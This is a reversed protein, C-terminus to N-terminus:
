AAGALQAIADVTGTVPTGDEYSLCVDEPLHALDSMRLYDRMTTGTCESDLNPAGRRADVDGAHVTRFDISFRTRGSDNPVSSHMQAGAFLIIGGPAPLLRLQPDLEMPEEPKPQERTDTKVHKAAELRSTRNWEQYNYKRSGNKVARGWYAPHFAMANSPLIPYIPLWWNIQCMPASYWTDRHPHFAYAIGSTLYNESTSTRMRPVDFYTLESDCGLDALIEQICKKSEPHHIFKPKLDTLITVYEEVPMEHQALEPDRGRFSDEIMQRALAVLKRAGTTATYVFLQGSYLLNRREDDTLAADFFVSNM